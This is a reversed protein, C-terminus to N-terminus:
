VKMWYRNATNLKIVTLLFANSIRHNISSDTTQGLKCLHGIKHMYKILKIVTNTWWFRMKRRELRRLTIQTLQAKTTSKRPIYVERISQVRTSRTNAHSPQHSNRHHQQQTRPIISKVLRLQTLQLLVSWCRDQSKWWWWWWWWRKTKLFLQWVCSHVLHMCMYICYFAMAVFTDVYLNSKYSRM